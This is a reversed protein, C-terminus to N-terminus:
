STVFSYPVSHHDTDEHHQYNIREFYSANNVLTLGEKIKLNLNPSYRKSPLALQRILCLWSKVTTYIFKEAPMKLVLNNMGTLIEKM